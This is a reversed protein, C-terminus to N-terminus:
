DLANVHVTEEKHQFYAAGRINAHNPPTPRATPQRAAACYAEVPAVSYTRAALAQAAAQELLAPGYRAACRLIGQCRRQISEPVGGHAIIAEILARTQPGIAAAETRVQDPDWGALYARHAPPLQDPMTHVAGPQRLRPHSAICCHDAFCEVTSATLRVDIRHGVWQVPVSYFARDVQIHCDSQVTATRWDGYEYPRDPLPRLTAQEDAAFREQRSGPVKKFPRANLRDRLAAVVSQAPAFSTLPVPRLAALVGREVILVAAEGKAKDRPKRVRAPVIACGDHAAGEQYAPHLRPEYRHPQLVGAKPNDPVILRPVGGFFELAHVPGPIWSLTSLDRHVEIFPYHSYGWPAVFLYGLVPRGNEYITLTDGADDVVCRDGPTYTQRLTVTLHKVYERYHACFQTYGSGEPHAARYELWLLPLTVGPQQLETHIAAWDPEVARRPRGRRTPYVWREIESDRVTEPRPWPQGSALFRRVIQAVTTHHLGLSEGIQRFSLHLDFHLRLIDRVM